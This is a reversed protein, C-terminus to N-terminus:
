SLLIAWGIMGLVVLVLWLGAAWAVTRLYRSQRRQEALLKLILVRSDPVKSLAHDLIAQAIEDNGVPLQDLEPHEWRDERVRYSLDVVDMAAIELYTKNRGLIADVVEDIPITDLM